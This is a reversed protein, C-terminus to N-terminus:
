PKRWVILFRPDYVGSCGCSTCSRSGRPKQVALLRHKHGGPCEGLWMVRNDPRAPAQLEGDEGWLRRAPIRLRACERQWLSGHGDDPVIIHAIEHLITARQDKEPWLSMLPGSLQLTGPAGDWFGDIKRYRISGSERRGNTFRLAWDDVNWQAMLKRALLDASEIRKVDGDVDNAWGRWKIRETTM